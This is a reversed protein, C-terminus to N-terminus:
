RQRQFLFRLLDFASDLPTQGFLDFTFNVSKEVFADSDEFGASEDHAWFRLAAKLEWWLADAYRDAVIPRSIVEGSDMGSELVSNAFSIVRNRLSELVKGPQKGAKLTFLVFSRQAKLVELLTFVFSLYRERATYQLYVEASQTKELADELMRLWLAKELVSFSAYHEYFEQEEAELSEMFTPISAPRQDHEVVYKLYAQEIKKAMEAM